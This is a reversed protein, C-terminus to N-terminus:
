QFAIGSSGRFQRVFLPHSQGAAQNQLFNSAFAAAFRSFQAQPAHFSLSLLSDDDLVIFLSDPQVSYAMRYIGAARDPNVFKELTWMLFIGFVLIRLVLLTVPLREKMEAM